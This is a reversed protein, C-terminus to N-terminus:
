KNFVVEKHNSRSRISSYLHYSIRGYNLRNHEKYDFYFSPPTDIPLPLSILPRVSPPTPFPVVMSLTSTKAVSSSPISNKPPVTFTVLAM